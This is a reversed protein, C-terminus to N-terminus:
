LFSIMAVIKATLKVNKPIDEQCFVEPLSGRTKLLLFKLWSSKFVERTRIKSFRFNLEIKKTQKMKNRPLAWHIVVALVTGM